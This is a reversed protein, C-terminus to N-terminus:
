ESKSSRKKTKRTLVPAVLIQHSVVGRVSIFYRLSGGLMPRACMCMPWISMKLKGMEESVQGIILGIQWENAAFLQDIYKQLRDEALITRGMILVCLTHLFCSFGAPLIQCDRALCWTERSSKVAPKVPCM